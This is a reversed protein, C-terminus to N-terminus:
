DSQHEDPHAEYPNFPSLGPEYKNGYDNDDWGWTISARAYARRWAWFEARQAPKLHATQMEGAPDNDQLYVRRQALGPQIRVQYLAVMAKFNPSDETQTLKALGEAEWFAAADAAREARRVKLFAGWGHAQAAFLRGDAWKQVTERWAPMYREAYYTRIQPGSILGQEKDAGALRALKEDAEKHQRAAAAAISKFAKEAAEVARTEAEPAAGGGIMEVATALREKVKLLQIEAANARYTLSDADLKAKKAERERANYVALRALLEKGTDWEAAREAAPDGAQALPYKFLAAKSLGRLPRDLEAWRRLEDNIVTLSM